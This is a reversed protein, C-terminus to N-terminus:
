GAVQRTFEYLPYFTTVVLPKDVAAAPTLLAGAVSGVILCFLGRKM